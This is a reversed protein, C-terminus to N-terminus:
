SDAHRIGTNRTLWARFQAGSQQERISYLTVAVLTLAGTWIYQYYASVHLHNLINQMGIVLIAGALTGVLTGRGGFISTGGVVVATISMLTFNTGSNPDGSGIRAAIIFGALVATLSCFLYALMRVRDVPLGAVYAAERSSGTAYLAAGHRSRQLVTEGVVYLVLTAIAAVPIWGIRRTVEDMFTFSVLGGPSPRVVLAMGFVISYTALTALLDPMRGYRILIGNVLGVGLGVAIAGLVGLLISGTSESIIWHSAVATTLSVLPGVSLDIGGLLIVAMQGMAVLALPAIQLALDSLNRPTLFHDTRIAAFAGLLLALAVVLTASGWKQFFRGLNGAGRIGTRAVEIDSGQLGDGELPGQVASSILREETLEEGTIEDVIEGRSIVLVRDCVGLIETEESSLLLVAAGNDALRRMLRYLDLKTAIDVGQTPQDLILVRPNALLWRGIVVKQQNGGSLLDVTQEPTPTRINLNEIAGAVQDREASGQVVGAKSWERLHPLAINERVSLPLMLAEGKRDSSLYVIGRDIADSPSSIRIEKGDLRVSGSAPLLGFLARAIAQQGEGEIGSLGLIAGRKIAFDVPSFAGRSRFGTLEIVPPGIEESKPPFAVTIDSQGVMLRVLDDTTVENTPVTDVTEGDRLVTVRDTLELIEPLRHSIFVIGSGQARLDRLIAFLQEVEQADLASTPEDLILVTDKGALARAIEVIQRNAVTLNSVLERPDISINLRSLLASAGAYMESRDVFPGVTTPEDGLYINQGVDLDRVLQTDQYVMNIGLARSKAPTELRVPRGGFHIAGADPQYVGTLIRMLTSKGAGNGGVLGHIEGPLVDFSVGKLAQVGPFGKDIGTVALLPERERQQQQSM